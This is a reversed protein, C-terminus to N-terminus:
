SGAPFRVRVRTSPGTLVVEVPGPIVTLPPTLRLRFAQTSDGFTWPEGATALHWNGGGDILWWSFGPTWTYEFRDALPPLGISVVHLHSESAASSLGALAFWPRRRRPGAAMRPLTSPFVAEAAVFPSMGPDSWVDTGAAADLRRLQDGARGLEAEALVRLYTEARDDGM